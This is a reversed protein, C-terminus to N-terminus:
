QFGIHNKSLSHNIKSMIISLFDGTQEVLCKPEEVFCAEIEVDRWVPTPCLFAVDGNFRDGRAFTLVHRQQHADRRIADFVELQLIPCVSGRLKNGENLFQGLLKWFQLTTTSTQDHVVRSNMVCTLCLLTQLLIVDSM